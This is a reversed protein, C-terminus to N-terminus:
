FTSIFQLLNGVTFFIVGWWILIRHLARDFSLRNLAYTFPALFIQLTLGISASLVFFPILIVFFILCKLLILVRGVLTLYKKKSSVNGYLIRSASYEGDEIIIDIGNVMNLLWKRVELALPITPWIVVYALVNNFKNISSIFKEISNEIVIEIRTLREVGLLEPAVMFGACFNLIIGIRNLWGASMYGFYYLLPIAVLIAVVFVRNLWISVVSAPKIIAEQAEQNPQTQATTDVQM